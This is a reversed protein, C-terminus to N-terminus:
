KMTSSYVNNNTLIRQFIIFYLIFFFANKEILYKVWVKSVERSLKREMRIRFLYKRKYVTIITYM